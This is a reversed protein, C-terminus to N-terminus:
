EEDTKLETKERVMKELAEMNAQIIENNRIMTMM